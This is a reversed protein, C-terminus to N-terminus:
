EGTWHVFRREALEIAKNLAYGMLGVVLISAYMEASRFMLHYDYIRMGLGSRTGIFMESVVIIILSLSLTIRWGAVVGLIVSPIFVNIMLIGPDRSLDRMLRERMIKPNKM